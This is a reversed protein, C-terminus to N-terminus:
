EKQWCTLVKNLMGFKKQFLQKKKTYKKWDQIETEKNLPM